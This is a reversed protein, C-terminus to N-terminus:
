QLKQERKQKTDTSIQEAAGPLKTQTSNSGNHRGGNSMTFKSM